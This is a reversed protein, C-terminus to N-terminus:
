AADPEDPTQGTFWAWEAPLEHKLRWSRLIARLQDMSTIDHRSRHPATTTNPPTLPQPPPM